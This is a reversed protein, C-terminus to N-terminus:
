EETSLFHNYISEFAFVAGKIIEDGCNFRQEYEELVNLFSKWYSGTKDGYGSFYSVGNGEFLQENATVNKLIFRGGLTSGEIVYFVGMAFPVSMATNEFVSKYTEKKCNLFELDNELLKKKKRKELDEIIGTLLPFVVTETQHHVDLMLGLYHCYDEIKMDPSLISASVPLSELKKHSDATEKKLEYLFDSSVQSANPVNM